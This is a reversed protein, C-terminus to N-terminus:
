FTGRYIACGSCVAPPVASSLRARFQAYPRGHWVAAVGDVCMNGLQARDPTAVM